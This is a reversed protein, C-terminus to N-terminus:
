GIWTSVFRWTLSGIGVMRQFSRIEFSWNGGFSDQLFRARVWLQGFDFLYCLKPPFWVHRWSPILTHPSPTFLSATTYHNLCLAWSWFTTPKFGPAPFSSPHKKNITEGLMVRRCGKFSTYVLISPDPLYFVWGGHFYQLHNVGRDKYRM